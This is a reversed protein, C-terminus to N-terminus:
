AHSGVVLEECPDRLMRVTLDNIMLVMGRRCVEDQVARDAIVKPIIAVVGAGVALGAGSGDVVQPCPSSRGSSCCIKLGATMAHSLHLHDAGHGTPLSPVGECSLNPCHRLRQRSEAPSPFTRLIQTAALIPPLHEALGQARGQEDASGVGSPAGLVGEGFLTGARRGSRVTASTGWPLPPRNGGPPAEPHRDLGSMQWTKGRETDPNSGLTPSTQCRCITPDTM